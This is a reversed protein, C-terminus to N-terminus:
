RGWGGADLLGALGPDANIWRLLRNSAHAMSRKVTSVSIDMATAIEEVTMSEMRRLSFVLRDRPALRYNVSFWAFGAKSLPEFM